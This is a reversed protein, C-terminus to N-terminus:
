PHAGTVAALSARLRSESDVLFNARVVVQEGQSLGELVEAAGADVRGLRVERPEFKGDGLSVFVVSRQGADIVADAPISLGERAKTRLTVDGFMEPLLSGDHNPFSLRARVTRTEPNLVPDIFAVHGELLQDPYAKPRFSAKMGVAARRLDSEHIDILVWVVSLDAIEYPMDGAALRHGEVVDKMMVVGSIPSRFVISKRPRGTRDLEDFLDPPVDWLALRRRASAVLAEGSEALEGTALEGSMRQALLYEEQLSVLEPSYLSFLADGAEVRRGIFDVFIREVFGEIKVNVHRIRTEDVAVRGVTWWEGGIPKREVPATRLGILQQRAPDIQVTALGPVQARAPDVEDAYVPLYDMGMEDQRPVHSTQKPNMPSRYFVIVREGGAAPAPDLPVLKMGCIPCDAPHDSTITPHMPCQYTVPAAASEATEATSGSAGGASRMAYWAGISGVAVGVGLLLAAWALAGARSPRM